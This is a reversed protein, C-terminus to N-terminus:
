RQINAVCRFKAGSSSRHFATCYQRLWQHASVRNRVSPVMGSVFLRASRSSPMMPRPRFAQSNAPLSAPPSHSATSYV